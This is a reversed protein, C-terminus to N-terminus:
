MYQSAFGTLVDAVNAVAAIFCTYKQLDMLHRFQLELILLVPDCKSDIDYYLLVVKVTNDATFGVTQFNILLFQQQRNYFMGNNCICSSLRYSCISNSYNYCKHGVLTTWDDARNSWKTSLVFSLRLCKWCYQIM